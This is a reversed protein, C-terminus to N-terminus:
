VLFLKRSYCDRRALATERLTKGRIPGTNIGVGGVERRKEVLAVRKGFLGAIDAGSIGAPGGGIVVVDFDKTM